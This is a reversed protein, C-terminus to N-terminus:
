APAPPWNPPPHDLLERFTRGPIYELVLFPVSEYEEISYIACIAPHNLAAATRAERLFREVARQEGASSLLLVKVAVQRNLRTDFALYVQGM